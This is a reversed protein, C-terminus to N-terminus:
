ADAASPGAGMSGGTSPLIPEPAVRHELAADLVELMDDVLVFDLEARTEEPVDDLDRENKRPLIVRKIGARHAALVSLSPADPAPM